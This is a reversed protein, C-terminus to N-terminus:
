FLFAPCNYILCMGESAASPCHRGEEKELFPFFSLFFYTVVDKRGEKGGGYLGLSNKSETDRGVLYSLNSLVLSLFLLVPGM